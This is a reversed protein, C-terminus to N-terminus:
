FLYGIYAAISQDSASDSLGHGYYGGINWHPIITYAYGFNLYKITQTSTYISENQYYAASFASKGNLQTYEVGTHFGSANQYRAQPVDRDNVWTYHAGAFLSFRNNLTYYLNISTTSDTAENNYTSKYTPLILGIGTTVTLKETPAFQYMINMTTDELGSESEIGNDSQFHSAIAQFRWNGAYVDAQLSTSLTDSPEQSAYNIQSYGIGAILNYSTKSGISKVVCGQHDVLDSFPTQPCLDYVDEVGDFDSDIYAHSSTAICVLPLLLRYM